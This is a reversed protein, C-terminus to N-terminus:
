NSRYVAQSSSTARGQGSQIRTLRWRQGSPTSVGTWTLDPRFVISVIHSTNVTAEGWTSVFRLDTLAISGTLVDGNQLVITTSEDAEQGFRIGAITHLPIAAEGFLSNVKLTELNVPTGELELGETLVLKMTSVDSKEVPASVTPGEDDQALVPNGVVVVLGLVILLLM